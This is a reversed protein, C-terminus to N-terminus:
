AKTLMSKPKRSCCTIRKTDDNEAWERAKERRMRSDAMVKGKRGKRGWKRNGGNGSGAAKFGNRKHFEQISPITM